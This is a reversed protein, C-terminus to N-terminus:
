AFAKGPNWGLHKGLNGNYMFQLWDKGAATTTLTPATAAAWQVVLTGLTSVTNYTTITRNGTADQTVEVNIIQGQVPNIFQLTRGTSTLTVLFHSGQTCDVTITGSTDVLQVPPGFTAIPNAVM